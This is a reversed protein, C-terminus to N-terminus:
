TAWRLAEEATRHQFRYGTDQLVRPLVRQGMVIGIDAFEGVLVRLALRPVRVPLVPRHLVTGLTRTFARNTVPDPGTLNVAGTIDENGLVHRMAGIEDALSIWSWYQKGSGLPVNVGAKALPLLRALLGGRGCVLGTRLHAVRVGAQEAAATAEEWRACVQALFDTGAPASEDVPHDGTDGYWGVASASLLTRSRPAAAILADSVTRTAEVRSDLVARKREDTWRKDGIGVGALNVVADVDALLAPDLEGRSPDWRAEDPASPARRVLRLVTHGDEHLAPVLASGILGSSGTIAIKM